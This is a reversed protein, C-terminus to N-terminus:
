LGTIILEASGDIMEMVMFQWPSGLHRHAVADLLRADRSSYRDSYDYDQAQELEANNRVRQFIEMVRSKAAAMREMESM